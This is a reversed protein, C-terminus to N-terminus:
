VDAKNLIHYSLPSSLLYCMQLHLQTQGRGLRQGREAELDCTKDVREVREAAVGLVQRGEPEVGEVGDHVGPDEDDAALGHEAVEARQQAAAEASSGHLRRRRM